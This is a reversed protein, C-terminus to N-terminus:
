PGPWRRSHDRWPISRWARRDPLNSTFRFVDAPPLSAESATARIQPDKRLARTMAVTRDGEELFFLGERIFPEDVNAKEIEVTLPFQVNRAELITVRIEVQAKSDVQEPVSLSFDLAPTGPAAPSSDDGCAATLFLGLVALGLIARM